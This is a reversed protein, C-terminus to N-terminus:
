LPSRMTSSSSLLNSPFLNEARVQKPDTEHMLRLTNMSERTLRKIPQWTGLGLEKARQRRKKWLPVEESESSEKGADDGAGEGRPAGSLLRPSRVPALARLTQVLRLMHAHVQTLSICTDALNEEKTRRM